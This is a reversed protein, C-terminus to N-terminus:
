FSVMWPEGAIEGQAVHHFALKRVVFALPATEHGGNTDSRRRETVVLETDPRLKGAALVEGLPREDSAEVNFPPFDDTDSLHARAPDFNRVADSQTM